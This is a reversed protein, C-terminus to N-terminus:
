ALEKNLEVDVGYIKNYDITNFESIELWGTEWVWDSVRPNKKTLDDLKVRDESVFRYVKFVGGCYKKMDRNFTLSNKNLLCMKEIVVYPKIRVIDGIQVDEVIM